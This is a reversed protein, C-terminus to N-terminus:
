KKILPGGLKNRSQLKSGFTWYKLKKHSEGFLAIERSGKGLKFASRQSKFLNSFPENSFTSSTSFDTYSDVLSM